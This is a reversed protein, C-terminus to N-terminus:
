INLSFTNKNVLLDDVLSYGANAQTQLFQIVGSRMVNPALQQTSRCRLGQRWKSSSRVQWGWCFELAHPFTQEIDFVRKVIKAEYIRNDRVKEGPGFIAFPRRLVMVFKMTEYEALWQHRQFTPMYCSKFAVIIEEYRKMFSCPPTM